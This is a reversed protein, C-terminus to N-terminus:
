TYVNMVVRIDGRCLPCIRRQNHTGSVVTRACDVCMCMHRCPLVLVSKVQDQCIVCLSREREKDLSQQLQIANNRSANNASGKSRTAYGHQQSSSTSASPQDPLQVDITEQDSDTVDSDSGIDTDDTNDDTTDALNSEDEDSEVDTDENRDGAGFYDFMNLGANRPFEDREDDSVEIMDNLDNLHIRIVENESHRFHSSLFRALQSGRFLLLVLTSLSIPIFYVYNTACLQWLSYASNVLTGLVYICLFDLEMLTLSWIHSLIFTIGGTVVACLSLLGDYIVFCLMIICEYLFSVGSSVWDNFTVALYAILEWTAEGVMSFGVCGTSFCWALANMWREANFIWMVWSHITQCALLPTLLVFALGNAIGTVTFYSIKFLLSCCCTVFYVTDIAFTCIGVVKLLVYSVGEYAALSLSTSLTYLLKAIGTILHGVASVLRYNVNLADTILQHIFYLLWGISQLGAWLAGLLSTM